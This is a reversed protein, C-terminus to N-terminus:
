IVGSQKLRVLTERSFGMEKEYVELNHEGILPARRRIRLQSPSLKAFAGPYTITDSLEPHEVEQWFDRAKHQSYEAIDQMSAVPAGMIGAESFMELLEAKTHNRFFKGFADTMRDLEQQSVRDFSFNDWDMEKLFEPAMGEKEMWETLKRNGPAGVKGGFPQFVFYGDQCRHIVKPGGGLTTRWRTRTGSRPIIVRNLEWHPLLLVIMSILSEQISADVYQGKGSRERWNHAVLTGIAAEAAGYLYAFTASFGVPAEDPYGVTYVCGGMAMLVLDSANFDRYPGDQGFPTIATMILRPNFEKLVSYGLGLRDMHGPPSSEIVFDASKVLEKFVERGDTNEIDLTIGRKNLNYAFWFLSKEQDAHDHYFPGNNRGPDGRPREIKIVDAGLDALIRGCLYGKEDTLDLVRFPALLSEEKGPTGNMLM